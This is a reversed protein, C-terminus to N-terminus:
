RRDRRCRWMRVQSAASSWRVRPVMATLWASRTRAKAWSVPLTDVESFPRAAFPSIVMVLVDPSLASATSRVASPRVRTAASVAM